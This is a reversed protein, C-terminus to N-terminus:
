VILGPPEEYTPRGRGVEEAKRGRCPLTPKTKGLGRHRDFADCGKKWLASVRARGAGPIPKTECLEDQRPDERWGQRAADM